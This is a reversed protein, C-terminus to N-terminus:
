LNYPASTAAKCAATVSPQTAGGLLSQLIGGSPNEPAPVETGMCGVLSGVATAVQAAYAADLHWQDAFVLHNGIVDPCQTGCFLPSLNVVADHSAAVATAVANDRATSFATSNPTACVQIHTVHASLCTVPNNAAIPTGLLVGVPKVHLQSLTSRVGRGWAGYPLTSGNPALEVKLQLEALITLSPPPVMANIATIVNHRFQACGPDVSNLYDREPV